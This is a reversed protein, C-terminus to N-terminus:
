AALKQSDQSDKYGAFFDQVAQTGLQQVTDAIASPIMQQVLRIDEERLDISNLNIIM